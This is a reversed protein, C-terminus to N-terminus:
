RRIQPGIEEDIRRVLELCDEYNAGVTIAPFGAARAMLGDSASRAPRAGDVLGVLTPHYRMGIVLGEKSLPRLGDVNVFITAQRDLERERKRARLWARMGLMLGEKAGTFVVWVDFHELEEDALELVTEVNEGDDDAFGSLPIDAFLPVCAILVVTPIFQAITLPLGELGGLRLLCCVLIAVLSWFFIAFWPVRSHLVGADRAVDYHAVLILRGPKGTDARSTVNQSARRGTLRRVLQVSGLLDLFASVAAALVLGAGIAPQTVAVVSGVIGMLAHIVHTIGFHPHISIPETEAERGLAHLRRELERAARREADTGPGRGPFAELTRGDQV